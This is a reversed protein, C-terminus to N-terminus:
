QDMRYTKEIPMFHINKDPDIYLFAISYGKAALSMLRRINSKHVHLTGNKVNIAYKREDIKVLFDHPTTKTGRELIEWGVREFFKVAIREGEYGSKNRKDKTPIKLKRLRWIITPKARDLKEAIEDLTLDSHLYLNRLKENDEEGWHYGRKDFGIKRARNMSELLYKKMFEPDKKLGLTSAKIRIAPVTRGILEALEEDHTTGHNERLLRLEEESWLRYPQLPKM